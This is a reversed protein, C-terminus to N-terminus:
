GKSAPNQSYSLSPQTLARAVLSHMIDEIAFRGAQSDCTLELGLAIRIAMSM